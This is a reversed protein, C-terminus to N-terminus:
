SPGVGCSVKYTEDKLEQQIAYLFEEIGIEDEITDFTMKDYGPAGKNRKVRRYAELLIDGRYIKDYLAGFKRDLSQKAAHSLKSQLNEVKSCVNITKRVSTDGINFPLQLQISGYISRHIDRLFTESAKEIDVKM